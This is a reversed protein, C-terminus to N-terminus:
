GVMEILAFITWDTYCHTSRYSPSFGWSMIIRNIGDYAEQFSEEDFHNWKRNEVAQRVPNHKHNSLLCRQNLGIFLKPFMQKFHTTAITSKLCLSSSIGNLAAPMELLWNLRNSIRLPYDVPMVAEINGDKRRLKTALM